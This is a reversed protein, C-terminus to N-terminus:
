SQPWCTVPQRTGCPTAGFATSPPADTVADVSAGCAYALVYQPLYGVQLALPRFSTGVPYYLRAVFSLAAIAALALAQYAGSPQRPQADGRGNPKPQADFLERPIVAYILDFLLLTGTFWVPGRIGRITRWHSTFESLQPRHGNALQLISNCVPPGLLSYAVTPLGLRYLRDQVFAAQGKRQLGKRSYYASIYFFSGMFYSQNLANLGILAVSSGRPHSSSQYSVAGEGGYSAATHHVVVLATLYSKFNDIFHSRSRASAKSNEGQTAM